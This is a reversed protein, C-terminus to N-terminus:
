ISNNKVDLMRRYVDTYQQAIVFPSFRKIVDQRIEIPNYSSEMAKVIGQYLSDVTFNDCIVGNTDNILDITGSCPFAIVPVGCAMAELPTQAFAEQFSPMVFYDVASFFLSMIRENNISGAKIINLGTHVPINGTGACMLTVKGIIDLRELARILEELGKRKESLDVSCFGFVIRDEPICFVQKAFSKNIPSFREYDVGNHIIEVPFSSLLPVRECFSKMMESLAIITINSRANSLAERKINVLDEETNKCQDYYKDRERKYHFGGFAINEDHFTWVIPKEISRFFTPYDIFDAVWHLHIIDADIVLPHLSLDYNSLPFTFITKNELCAVSRQYNELQTLFLGRRRMVKAIKWLIKNKPPSYTNLGTKEALFVTPLDSRKKAVLVKSDIGLELLSTHIRLVCLGAGGFDSTTIHLVKM